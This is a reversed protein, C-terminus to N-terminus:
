RVTVTTRRSMARDSAAIAETGPRGFAHARM